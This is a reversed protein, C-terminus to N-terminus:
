ARFMVEERMAPGKFRGKRGIATGRVDGPERMSTHGFGYRGYSLRKLRFSPAYFTPACRIHSKVYVCGLIRTQM